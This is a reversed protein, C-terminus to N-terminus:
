EHCIEQVKPSWPLYDQLVTLDGPVPLNPLAAFLYNLYQRLDLHNIEATKLVSLLIGTAVAGRKSQSFLWNKRGMVLEKVAREARNNSLELRGDQLVARLGVEHGLAYEVARGLKSKPLYSDGLEFLWKFFADMQPQLHEKRQALRETAPLGRWGQELHFMENCYQRGIPALGTDGGTVAEDFKRRVHAWCYVNTLDPLRPYVAYGDTQLYKTYGKLFREAEGYGRTDGHDYLIIQYEAFKGSTYVWYYTKAKKIALVRYPTEDAHIIDQALLEQHMLNYLPRLYEEAVKIHWGSLAQRTFDAGRNHWLKEQRYDPVKYIFKTLISETVVANSAMSHSIVPKPVDAKKTIVKGHDQLCQENTCVYTHQYVTTALLKVPVFDVEKRVATRGIDAMMKGCGPCIQDETDLTYDRTNQPLQSLDMSKRHVVKKPRKKVPEDEGSAKAVAAQEEQTLVHENFLNTQGDPLNQSSERRRGYLVRKLVALQEQMQQNEHLLNQVITRLQEPTADALAISNKPEVM